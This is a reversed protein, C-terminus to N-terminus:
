KWEITGDEYVTVIGKQTHVTALVKLAPPPPPPPPPPTASLAVSFNITKTNTKGFNDTVTLSLQYLGNALKVLDKKPGGYTGGLPGSGWDGGKIPTLDWQYGLWDTRVNKSASGDVTITTTSVTAGDVLDFAAIVTSSPPAAPKWTTGKMTVLCWEYISLSTGWIDSKYTPNYFNNWDGHGGTYIHTRCTGPAVSNLKADFALMNQTFGGDANGSFGWVWIKSAATAGVNATNGSSAPSMPIAATFLEMLGPTTIINLTTDGGASLGSVAVCNRNIRYNKFIHNTLCYGVESPSPSWDPDQLALVIFKYKKQDVPNTFEMKHGDEIFTFPGVNDMMALTAQTGGREGRGHCFVFLPYTETSSNYNDPLFLRGWYTASASVPFKQELIM